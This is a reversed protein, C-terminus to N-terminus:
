IDELFVQFRDIYTAYVTNPCVAFFGVQGASSEGWPIYHYDTSLLVKAYELTWTESGTSGTGSYINILDQSGDPIVDMRVKTWTNASVTFGTDFLTAASVKADLVLRLNASPGGDGTDGLVLSYGHPVRTSTDPVATDLKVTLGIASNSSFVTDARLWARVSISKTNPIEYYDYGDAAATLYIVTKTSVGSSLSFERCYTGEGVLPSGLSVHTTANGTSDGTFSGTGVKFFDFDAVAM